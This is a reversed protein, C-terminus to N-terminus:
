PKLCDLPLIYVGDDRKYAAGGSATIIALFSPPITENALKNKIKNLNDAANDFEFEGLKVEVAAWRGDPLQLIADAELDDFDHYHYVAGGLADMYVSIDRFCLSEFLFGATKIDGSLIEPTADLAAAALSPDAFHRKPTTRIRKRSRLSPAWADQEEIVFIKKLTEYYNRVTQDSIDGGERESIDAKIRTAKVSTASNRALSRIFLSVLATDRKIEDTRNIDENIVMNMYERAIFPAREEPVWFSAPWGGTCILRLAKMYNMESPCPEFGEGDFLFTLSAKGSSIGSEFLSLPRMRMRAFRGTGTHSPKEKAPVASGTFIFMGPRHEKDIMRRAADWLIPADQWEDILRPPAGDLIVDPMLLAKKKNDEMDIFIESEAQNSATWSKGCWKPGTILVGGFVSLVTKLKEDVIRPRYDKKNM